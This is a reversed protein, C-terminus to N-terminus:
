DPSRTIPFRKGRIECIFASSFSFVLLWFGIVAIDAIVAIVRSRL